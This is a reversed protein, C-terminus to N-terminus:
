KRELKEECIWVVESEETLLNIQRGLKSFLSEKDCGIRQSKWIFRNELQLVSLVDQLEHGVAALGVLEKPLLHDDYSLSPHTFGSKPINERLM